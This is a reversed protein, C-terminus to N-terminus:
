HSIILSVKGCVSCKFENTAHYANMHNRMGQAGRKVWMSCQVCQLYITIVFLDKSLSNVKSETPTMKRGKRKKRAPEEVEDDDETETDNSGLLFIFCQNFLLSLGFM